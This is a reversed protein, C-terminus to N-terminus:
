LARPQSGGLQVAVPHEAPDFGLLRKRDGHMIAGTTLMETYILAHRTLLRHFFRCHRDTWEMMPAVAFRRACAARNSQMRNEQGLIHPPVLGSAGTLRWFARGRARSTGYPRRLKKRFGTCMIRRSLMLLCFPWWSRKMSAEAASLLPSFTPRTPGLPAPLVVSNRIIVPSSCGSSPWTATSRPTVM